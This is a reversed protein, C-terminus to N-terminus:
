KAEEGYRALKALTCTNAVEAYNQWAAQAEACDSDDIVEVEVDGLPGFVKGKLNDPLSYCQPHFAIFGAPHQAINSAYAALPGRRGDVVIVHASSSLIVHQVKM